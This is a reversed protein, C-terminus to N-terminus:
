AAEPTITQAAVWARLDGVAYRVHRGIKRYRPGRKGWRWRELTSQEIPTGQAVFWEAAGATDLLKDAAGATDLLKDDDM